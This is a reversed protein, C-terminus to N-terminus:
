LSKIIRFGVVNSTTKIGFLFPLNLFSSYACVLIFSPLVLILLFFFIFNAQHSPNLNPKNKLWGMWSKLSDKLQKAM